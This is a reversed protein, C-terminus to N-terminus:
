RSVTGDPKLLVMVELAAEFVARFQAESARARATREEVQAGFSSSPRRPLPSTARGGRHVRGAGRGARLAAAVGEEALSIRRGLSPLPGRAHVRQLSAEGAISEAVIREVDDPHIRARWDLKRAEEITADPGCAFDVYADNVFDRVRDLRTVWMLAPASNAIRRFRAESERLAREAVRQETIDQVIVIIGPGRGDRDAWPIYDTQVAATGRTPHDFEAVFFQARGGLAAEIMPEREAFAEEGIVERMTGGSSTRARGGSGNPSRSTSSATASDRDVYAVMVPLMDAIALMASFDLMGPGGDAAARGAREAENRVGRDAM